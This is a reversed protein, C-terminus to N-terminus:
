RGRGGGGPGNRPEISSDKDRTGRYVAFVAVAVIAVVGLVFLPDM